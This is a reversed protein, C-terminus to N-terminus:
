TTGIPSAKKGVDTPHIYTHIYTHIYLIYGDGIDLIKWRTQGEERVLPSADIHAYSRVLMTNEM